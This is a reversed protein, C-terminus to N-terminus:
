KSAGVFAQWNSNAIWRGDPTRALCTGSDAWNLVAFKTPIGTQSAWNSCSTRGYARSGLAIAITVAIVFVAIGGFASLLFGGVTLGFDDTLRLKHAIAHASM